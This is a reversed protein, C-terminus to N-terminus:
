GTDVKVGHTEKVINLVLMTYTSKVHPMAIIRKILANMEKRGRFKVIAVADYTGTVDYIASVNPENSIRKEIEPLFKGDVSIGIVAALDYGIKSYDIDVIFGRIIGMDKLKNVRNYVTGEAVGLKEAIEKYSQRANSRFENLIKADLEDTKETM